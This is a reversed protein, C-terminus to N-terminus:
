GTAPPMKRLGRQVIATGDHAAIDIFNDQLTLVEVKDVPKLQITMIQRKFSGGKIFPSLSSFTVRNPEALIRNKAPNKRIRGSPPRSRNRCAFPTTAAMSLRWVGLPKCVRNLVNQLLDIDCLTDRTGPLFSCPSASATSILM